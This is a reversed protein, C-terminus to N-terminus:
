RGPEANELTEAICSRLRTEINGKGVEKMSVDFREDGVLTFFKTGLRGAAGALCIREMGLALIADREKQSRVSLARRVHEDTISGIFVYRREITPRMGLVEKLCVDVSRGSRVVLQGVQRVEKSSLGKELVANAVMRQNDAGGIRVLEAACSFGIM